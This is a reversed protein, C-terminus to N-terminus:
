EQECIVFRGSSSYTGQDHRPFSLLPKEQDTNEDKETPESRHEVFQLAAVLREYEACPDTNKLLAVNLDFETEVLIRERLNIANRDNM